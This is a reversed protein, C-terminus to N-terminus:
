FNLDFLFNEVVAALYFCIASTLITKVFTLWKPQEDYFKLNTIINYAVVIPLEIFQTELNPWILKLPTLIGSFVLLLSVNYLILVFTEAYNYKSRSFFCFLVLTYVPVMVVQIIVRYQHFFSAEAENGADFYHILALNVWYQLLTSITACLFFMSFPKQHKARHGELYERQMEGPAILLQKLTYLFGKDLHSFFHFIEHAITSFTIRKTAYAQGCNNCYKGDGNEGCQKCHHLKKAM